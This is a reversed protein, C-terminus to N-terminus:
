ETSVSFHQSYTTASQMPYTWLTHPDLAFEVVQERVGPVGRLMFRTPVEGAPIPLNSVASFAYRESGEWTLEFPIEAGSSLVLVGRDYREADALAGLMTPTVQKPKPTRTVFLGAAAAGLIFFVVAIIANIM